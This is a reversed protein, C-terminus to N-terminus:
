RLQKDLFAILSAAFPEAAPADFGHGGAECQLYTVEKNAALLRENMRDSLSKPVNADDNCHALWVPQRVDKLNSAPSTSRWFPSEDNPEGFIRILAQKPESSISPHGESPFAIAYLEAASASSSGALGVAKILDPRALAAKLAVHGGLSHGLVAVQRNNVPQYQRLLAALSIVDQSYGNGYYASEAVGWSRDHGRYDPQIVLYGKATLAEIWRSYTTATTSYQDGPIFGHSVIVAPYGGAPQPIKPTAVLAYIKLDGSPYSVVKATYNEGAPAATAEDTISGQGYSRSALAEITLPHKLQASRAVPAQSIPIYPKISSGASSLVTERLVFGILLGCLIAGVVAAIDTLRFIFNM